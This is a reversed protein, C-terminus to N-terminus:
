ARRVCQFREVDYSQLTGLNVARLVGAVRPSASRNLISRHVMNGNMICCDGLSMELVKERALEDNRLSPQMQKFIGHKM